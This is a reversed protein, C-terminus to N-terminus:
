PIQPSRLKCLRFSEVEFHSGTITAKSKPDVFSYKRERGTVSVMDGKRAFLESAEDLTGREARTDADRLSRLDVVTLHECELFGVVDTASFLYAGDRLQM